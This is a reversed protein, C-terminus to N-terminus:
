DTELMNLVLNPDPCNQLYKERDNVACVGPYDGKKEQMDEIVQFHLHPPWDGNEHPEGFHALVEGRSIYQGEQLAAIDDMSVHGYLTHFSITDIQHLLVITAGYDAFADNYGVSHVMGGLPAYVITGSPGWIDIGLHISRNGQGETDGAVGEGNFHKSRKYLVRDENYGGIGYTYDGAELKQQIYWAFHKTYTIIDENLEKNAATFDLQLLKDTAPDFPVVPHFHQRNKALINALRTKMPQLYVSEGTLQKFPYIKTSNFV